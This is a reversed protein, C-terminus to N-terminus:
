DHAVLSLQWDPIVCLFFPVNRGNHDGEMKRKKRLRAVEKELALKAATLRKITATLVKILHLHEDQHKLLVELHEYILELESVAHVFEEELTSSM